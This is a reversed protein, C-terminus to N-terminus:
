RRRPLRGAVALAALRAKAPDPVRIRTTRLTEAPTARIRDALEAFLGHALAVARRPGPELLPLAAAAAALDEDIDALLREKTAEDIRTVDVGPFYARGLGDADAALDRLFNVKQFAAGLRRAGRELVDLQESTRVPGAAVFARLCMLGVVEASGDVYEAFSADTHSTRQLDMRMSTFFPTVIEREIGVARASSAFAHVVLNTSYGTAMARYTDAELEDLAEAIRDATVGAAEAVGDVVEDALRVLAYVNRIHARTPAPLLRVALGFSTSYEGIVVASSRAAARDYRELPGVAM